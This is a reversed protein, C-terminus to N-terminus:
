KLSHSCNLNDNVTYFKKGKKALEVNKEHFHGVMLDLLNIMFHTVLMGRREVNENLIELSGAM